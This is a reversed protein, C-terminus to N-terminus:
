NLSRVPNKFAQLDHEVEQLKNQLTAVLNILEGQTKIIRDQTILINRMTESQKISADALDNLITKVKSDM